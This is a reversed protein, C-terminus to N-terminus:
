IQPEGRSPQELLQALELLALGVLGKMKTPDWDSDTNVQPLHGQVGATADLGWTNGSRLGSTFNNDSLAKHGYDEMQNTGTEGPTDIPSDDPSTQNSTSSLQHPRGTLVASTTGEALPGPSICSQSPLLSVGQSSTPTEHCAFSTSSPADDLPSTIGMGNEFPGLKANSSSFSVSTQLPPALNQTLLQQQQEADDDDLTTLASLPTSLRSELPTFSAHLTPAPMGRFTNSLQSLPIPELPDHPLADFGEVDVTHHTDDEGEADADDAADEIDDMDDAEAQRPGDVDLWDDHEPRPRTRFLLMNREGVYYKQNWSSKDAKAPPDIEHTKVHSMNLKWSPAIDGVFVKRKKIRKRSLEGTQKLPEVFGIPKKFCTEGELPKAILVDDSCNVGAYARGIPEGDFGYITAWYTVDGKVEVKGLAYLGGLAPLLMDRQMQAPPDKKARKKRKKKEKESDALNEGRGRRASPTSALPM